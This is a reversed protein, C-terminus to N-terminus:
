DAIASMQKWTFSQQIIPTHGKLSWTRTVPCKESLGSEDIFVITREKRRAKKKLGPWTKRKWDVIAEENRQTARKEPKQPSFGVSRLLEWCGTNSYEVGFERAVWARERKVTWPETAFGAQLAGAMLTRSLAECQSADLRKPRGLTKAKLKGVAGNVEALQRASVSVAQRSVDLERAVDAQAVKRKLMRAGEIRRAEIAELDRKTAM